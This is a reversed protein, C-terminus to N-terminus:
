KVVYTNLVDSFNFRYGQLPISNKFYSNTNVEKTIWNKEDRNLRNGTNLKERLSYVKSNKLSDLEPVDWKVFKVAIATTNM